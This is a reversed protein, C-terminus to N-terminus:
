KTRFGRAISNSDLRMRRLLNQFRPDDRVSDYDPWGLYPLNPDRAKYAKELWDLARDKAGAFVYYGAIACPSLDSSGPRAALTEAARRWAGRYGGIQNGRILAEEMERDGLLAYAQRQAVIAEAHMGKDELASPLLGLAVPNDPAISLASRSATIAEDFRREYLLDMGYLSRFLPNLPDLALAREIQERAEEPRGMINLFHSYFARVDPFNPNIEIARRYASDAGEWNWEDHWTRTLALAYQVEALTSDLELAKRAAACAKPAAERPPTIGMQSRGGWVLAIGAYALAYNSDEKLARQFYEFANELAGETLQHWHFQGKLYDDYAQVNVIPRKSASRREASTLQLKLAEVIASSIEDQVAFVEKLERDFKGSWLHYGDAINILQATIRLQSGSKQVSGELVTNVKLQEGIDRINETKGKFVFVSTRAPVRLEGVNSLRNILEETIGDCFYEQDKQPSMDVFPLVAISKQGGPSPQRLFLLYALVVLAAVVAVGGVVLPLKASKRKAKFSSVTELRGLDAVIEDARQYRKERERQLCRDIVRELASPLQIQWTKAPLPEENAISYAMAAEHDGKWPLHGTVMEYLMTGLSFLDSRHDVEGGHIQEPSMYAATGVTSGTRTLKAQGALKALGFDVIKTVGEKTLLINAPKIDRHVIGHEHAKALGQAVQAAFGTAEEMKLPGRQIRKELTEGELCEMSIFMQGDDTEDIDYVVCINNHQLASAAQAEHIFREKAEADRTLDPPLFKLAVTRKLKTDEAKYVVGMGGEGLKQLIKYHSITHGIM